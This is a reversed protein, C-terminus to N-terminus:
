YNFVGDEKTKSRSEEAGAHMEFEDKSIGHEKLMHKEYNAERKYFKKCVSCPFFEKMTDSDGVGVTNDGFHKDMFHKRLGNVSKYPRLCIHCSMEKSSKSNRRDEQANIQREVTLLDGFSLIPEVKPSGTSVFGEIFEM